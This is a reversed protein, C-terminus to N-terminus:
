DEQSDQAEEEKPLLNFKEVREFWQDVARKFEDGELIFEQYLCDVSCMLIVGKEIETGYLENHALAYAALQQFYDGFGNDANPNTPKSSIWSRCNMKMYALLMQEEQMNIQIICLFKVVM